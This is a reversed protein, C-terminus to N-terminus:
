TLLWFIKIILISCIRFLQSGFSEGWYSVDQPTLSVHSHQLLACYFSFRHFSCSLCHSLQVIFGAPLSCITIPHKKVYSWNLFWRQYNWHPPINCPTKNKRRQMERQRVSLKGPFHFALSCHNDKHLKAAIAFLGGGRDRTQEDVENQLFFVWPWLVVIRVTM